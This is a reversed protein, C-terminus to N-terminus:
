SYVLISGFYSFQLLWDINVSVARNLFLLRFVFLLCCLGNSQGIKIPRSVSAGDYGLQHYDNRGCSYLEGARTVILLHYEGLAVGDVAPLGAVTLPAWLNDENGHGLVGFSGCGWTLLEGADPCRAEAVIPTSQKVVFRDRGGVFEM